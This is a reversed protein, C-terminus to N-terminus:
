GLKEPTEAGKRKVARDGNNFSNFTRADVKIKIRKGADTMFCLTYFERGSEEDDEHSKSELVGSWASSRQRASYLTLLVTVAVVGLITLFIQLYNNM